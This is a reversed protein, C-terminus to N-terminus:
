RSLLYLAAVGVVAIALFAGILGAATIWIRGGFRNISAKVQGKLPGGIASLLWLVLVALLFVIVVELLATAHNQRLHVGAGREQEFNQAEATLPLLVSVVSTIFPKVRWGGDVRHIQPCRRSNSVTIISPENHFHGASPNVTILDSDMFHRQRRDFM